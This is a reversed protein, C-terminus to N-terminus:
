PAVSVATQRASGSASDGTALPVSATVKTGGSPAKGVRLCGGHEDLARRLAALGHGRDASARRSRGVGDDVVTVLLRERDTTNLMIRIRCPGAHKAANVLAERSVKILADASSRRLADAARLADPNLQMHIAVSFEQEVGAVVAALRQDFDPS